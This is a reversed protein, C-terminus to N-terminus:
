MLNLRGGRVYTSDGTHLLKIVQVENLTDATHIDDENRTRSKLISHHANFVGGTLCNQTETLSFVEGVDTHGYKTRISTVSSWTHDALM